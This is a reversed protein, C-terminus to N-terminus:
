ALFLMERYKPLPWLGDATLAEARDCAARLADAAPLVRSALAAAHGEESEAAAAEQRAAELGEIGELMAGVTRDLDHRYRVVVTAEDRLASVGNRHALLAPLIQTRVLDLLCASEIERIKVYQELRVRRRGATEVESLVGARALFEVNDQEDLVALASPTDALNPLGRERAEERWAEDYCNGNFRIARTRAASTQVVTLVADDTGAGAQAAKLEATLIELAEAMATNLVAIPMGTSQSSGCARFEFKNGTFAIPSTRNRDTTDSPLQALHDLGLDLANRRSGRPKRKDALDDLIASLQDGVFVSMIAPPAENAGLRHDNGATAVTARLLAGRRRMAELFACLFFLFRQNEEPTEGPEFLNDGDTTGLAWNVHKGSGNVGAFPKEHLLCSFAHRQAVAKARAMVLQNHDTALHAEEFIPALEFQMPAVENHRTKVPVGLAMLDRDLEDMFGLVRERITGFYHDELEQGKAPQAGQLTRGTLTLDPRLAALSRDVLFYEQELGATAVVAGTTQRGLAALAEEARRGLLQMSRTLPTKEDLAQGDYSLFHCPICLTRSGGSESIFAPSTPDWMTYGRAEFTTRAGGSPFSSADPEGQFLQGGSFREIASRNDTFSLFSDHKEATMGTQPQFWHCFHTAGMSLAWEKMGHAVTRALDDDMRGKRAIVDQLTQFAERPLFHERARASFTLAGFVDAVKGQPGDARRLPRSTAHRVAEFRAAAGATVDLNMAPNGEISDTNPLM